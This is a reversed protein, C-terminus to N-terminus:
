HRRVANGGAIIEKVLDAVGRHMVDDGGKGMANLHTTEVDRLVGVIENAPLLKHDKLALILSETIALAAIGAFENRLTM